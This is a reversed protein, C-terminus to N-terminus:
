CFTIRLGPNGPQCARMGDRDDKSWSYVRPCARKLARSYDTVRDRDLNRCGVVRGNKQVKSNQPCQSNSNFRCSARNCNGGARPNTPDMTIPLTFGDVHSVDYWTMGANDWFMEALSVYGEVTDCNQGQGNCGAHAWVRASSGRNISVDRSQGNGLTFPGSNVGESKVYINRGCNNRIHLQEGLTLVLLQAGIGLFVFYKM